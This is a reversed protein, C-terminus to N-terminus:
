ANLLEVAKAVVDATLRACREKRKSSGHSEGTENMWNMVSDQCLASDAVTQTLVEDSKYEDVLFEHNKAYENSTDSPIEAEKYWSILEAVIENANKSDTVLNVAASAGLLAGCTLGAGAVGGGGFHLLNDPPTIPFQDYPEGAQEELAALIGYFAGSSCNGLYYGEHGLKRAREPDIETYPWPFEKTTSSALVKKNGKVPSNILAMGGLVTGATIGGIKKIAERRTIGKEEKSM